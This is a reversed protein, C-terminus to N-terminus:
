QGVRFCTGYPLSLEGDTTKVFMEINGRMSSSKMNIQWSTDQALGLESKTGEAIGWLVNSSQAKGAEMKIPLYPASAPSSEYAKFTEVIKDTPRVSMHYLRSKDMFVEVFAKFGLKSGKTESLSTCSYLDTRLSPADAPYWNTTIWNGYADTNPENTNTQTPIPAPVPCTTAEPASQTPTQETTTVISEMSAVPVASKSNNSSGCSVVLLALCISKKM